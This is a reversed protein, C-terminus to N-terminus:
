LVRIDHKFSCHGSGHIRGTLLVLLIIETFSYTLLMFIGTGYPLEAM